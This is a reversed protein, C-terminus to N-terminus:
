MEGKINSYVSLKTPVLIPVCIDYPEMIPKDIDFGDSLLHKSRNYLTNVDDSVSYSISNNNCVNRLYELMSQGSVLSISYVYNQEVWDKTTDQLFSKVIKCSYDLWEKRMTDYYKYIRKGNDNVFFVADGSEYQVYKGDIYGEVTSGVIDSFQTYASDNSTVARKISLLNIPQTLLFRPTAKLDLWFNAVYRDKQAYRTTSVTILFYPNKLKNSIIYPSGDKNQVLKNITFTENRYVSLENNFNKM